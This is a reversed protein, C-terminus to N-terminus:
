PLDVRALVEKECDPVMRLVTEIHAELLVKRLNDTQPREARGLEEPIFHGALFLALLEVLVIEQVLPSEGHLIIQCQHSLERARDVVHRDIM